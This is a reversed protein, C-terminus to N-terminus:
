IARVTEIMRRAITDYSGFQRHVDKGGLDRLLMSCIPASLVCLNGLNVELCYLTGTEICRVMDISLVSSQPYLACISRALALMEADNSLRRTRTDHFNSTAEGGALGSLAEPRFDNPAITQFCVIAAGLFTTVRTHTPRDGTLVYQQLLPRHGAAIDDAYRAVLDDRVAAYQDTRFVHIGQARVTSPATTKIAIYPGFATADPVKAPDFTETHPTPIGGTKLDAVLESKSKQPAFFKPGPVFDFIPSPPNNNLTVTITQVPFPGALAVPTLDCDFPLFRVAPDRLHLCRTIFDIDRATTREATYPLIVTPAM